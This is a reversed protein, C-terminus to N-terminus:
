IKKSRLHAASLRFDYTAAVQVLERVLDMITDDKSAGSKIQVVSQNDCHFFVRQHRRHHGWFNHSLKKYAMGFYQQAPLWAVSLWEKKYFGGFGKMCSADTSLEFYPVLTWEPLDFFSIGNWTPLFYNWWHLDLCAQKPLRIFKQRPKSTRLLNILRQLFTRGHVVVGCAHSLKGLLSELQKRTCFKKKVWDSIIAQLEFSKDSPLRTTM